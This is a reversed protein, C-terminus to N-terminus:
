QALPTATVVQYSTNGIKVIAVNTDLVTIQNSVDRVKEGAPPAEIEQGIAFDSVSSAKAGGLEQAEVRCVHLKAFCQTNGNKFSVLLKADALEKSEFEFTRETGAACKFTGKGSKLALKQDWKLKEDLRTGRKFLRSGPTTAGVHEFMLCSSAPCSPCNAGVTFNGDISTFTYTNCDPYFDLAYYSSYGGWQVYEWVACVCETTTTVAGTLRPARVAAPASPQHTVGVCARRAAPRCGRAALADNCLSAAFLSWAVTTVVFMRKM